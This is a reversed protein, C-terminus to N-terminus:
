LTRWLPPLKRLWAPDVSTWGPVEYNGKDEAGRELDKSILELRFERSEDTFLEGMRAGFALGRADVARAYINKTTELRSHGLGVQVTVPDVGENFAITARSHRYDHIRILRLGMEMRWRKFRKSHNSPNAAGGRSDFILFDPLGELRHKEVLRYAMEKQRM